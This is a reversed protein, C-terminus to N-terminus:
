YGCHLDPRLWHIRYIKESSGAGKSVQWNDSVFLDAVAVLEDGSYLLPIRDRLWPPVKYEQLIKKLPRTKRGAPKASEGGARFRVSLRGGPPMAMGAGAQEQLSLTGMGAPLVLDADCQWELNMGDPLPALPMVFYLHGAFRRISMDRGDKNWNVEPEADEAAPIVEGLIRDIVYADPMRADFHSDLRHFWTRLINRQRAPTFAQLAPISLRCPGAEVASLDQGGVEHALADSEDALSAFRQWNKRYGPWRAALVPLVQRRLYNRDLAVDRNSDDEIWDLGERAAWAHLEERSFGLLPRRIEVKEQGRVRRIGAMGKVGTGRMMRFLLTEVQDDLHHATLLTDGPELLRTMADYRAERAAQELGEGRNEVTVTVVDLPIDLAACVRRCHVAWDAAAPNLGHNVHIARLSGRFEGSDRLCAMARLLVHSDMGGSYAVHCARPQTPLWPLLAHPDFAM